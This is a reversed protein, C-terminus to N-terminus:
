DEKTTHAPAAEEGNQKFAAIIDRFETSEAIKLKDKEIYYRALESSNRIVRMLADHTSVIPISVGNVMM